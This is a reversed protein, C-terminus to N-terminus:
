GFLVPGDALYSKGKGSPLNEIYALGMAMALAIVPDIRQNSTRKSFWQNDWDDGTLAVSMIASVLVPNNRLRIRGELIADELLQKSFPMWLAERTKQQRVVDGGGTTVNEVRSTDGEPDPIYAKKKGGQPHEYVAVETQNEDLKEKFQDFAYVDYAIGRLKFVDAWKDVRAAVTALNVQQGRCAYLHGDEVWKQYPAKDKVAREAITDEPTWAEVWADYTPEMTVIDRDLEKDYRRVEVTGTKVVCAGATLDKRAGLDLGGNVEAGKHIVYPDFDHLVKKLLTDSIWTQDAETWICFHLRKKNAAKGPMHRVEQVVGRLYSPQLIVGLLPNVKQWCTEDNMPDDGEDLDCVFAFTDDDEIEGKAVKVAREHEEWCVTRKDHGSNTTMVLLPQQRFKFGAELMDIVDRNKHEHLEDALACSPRPGSHAAEPSVPRFFSATSAHMLNQPISGGRVAVKKSLWPSQNRMAVADRFLVMAQDKNSAAAYVEARMEGDATLMYMGIGAALPSKGNGKGEEDYFRRFRRVIGHEADHKKWGFLSGIRFAQSEHLLFPKNEFQGGNLLLKTEFFRFAREAARYDFFLGRDEGLIL